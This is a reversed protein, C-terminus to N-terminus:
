VGLSDYQQLVTAAEYVFFVSSGFSALVITTTCHGGLVHVRVRLANMFWM